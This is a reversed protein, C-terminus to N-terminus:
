DKRVTAGICITFREPFPGGQFDVGGHPPPLLSVEPRLLIRRVVEPIMVGAVYRGLCTHHGFGFHLRIFDPRDMRFSSGDPVYYEDFMASATCAFVIANAPILTERQTGAALKYDKECYRFVLPNIPNFRLAEWVYRDFRGLDPRTAADTAQAQIDPRLLIQELAQIIAQSTTEGAGILLGAVNALIRHDDFDLEAPFYTRILRSFIDQHSNVQVHEVAARKDDLLDKLYAMMEQGARVSEEHVVSDNQLNKFMDFQTARSWRYMTELDPGPFGFYEGCLRIPVYRGLRSVVEIRGDQANRDLSEDAIRGAMERVDPLDEPRLVAQMIGKERWNVPTDDRALMFPGDVVPDMRPAYLRVSFINEHSLVEMVDPFRTVLTFGPTVFIPRHERLERFFPIADTRIWGRVLAVKERDDALADYQELYAM